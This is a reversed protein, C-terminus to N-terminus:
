DTQFTSGKSACRYASPTIGMMKKYVQTFHAPTKFGVCAAIYAISYQDQVLMVNARECRKRNFYALPTQGTERKFVRLLYNKEVRMQAALSELDYPSEFNSELWACAKKVTEKPAGEWGAKEPCCRRCPRYGNAIAEEANEFVVINEAKCHKKRCNPRCFIKTTKVGYCFEKDCHTLDKQTM